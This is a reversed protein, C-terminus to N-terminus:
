LVSYGFSKKSANAENTGRMERITNRARRLVPILRTDLGWVSVGRISNRYITLSHNERSKDTLHRKYPNLGPGTCYESQGTEFLHQLIRAELYRGPSLDSYKPDYDARLAYARGGALLDYEMAAPAGHVRLLWLYLWGERGATRTLEDFFRLSGPSSSLSVGKEAKWGRSSLTAIEKLLLASPDDRFVEVSVGEVKAIRNAINRYTKRFKPSRGKLFTEWDGHLEVYPTVSSTKQRLRTRRSSAVSLFLRYNTSDAPWQSFRCMDWPLDPHFLQDHLLAVVPEPDPRDIIFDALPTDPCAIFTLIRVPVGRHRGARSWLPAVGVLRDDEYAAVIELSKGESHSEVCASYWGPTLFPPLNKRRAIDWWSSQLASFEGPTTIRKATLM